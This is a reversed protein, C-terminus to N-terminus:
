KPTEERQNEAGPENPRKGSNSAQHQNVSEGPGGHPPQAMMALPNLIVKSPDLGRMRAGRRLVYARNFLPDKAALNYFTMLDKFDKATDVRLQSDPAIDYLYRGSILQNNWVQMVKAGQQGTIQIYEDETAYRMLLQDIMRAGDLYFDVVRGLEKDNRAAVASQVNAIETATRVTNEPVGSQNSGIGLTEDIDRKILEAGQYDDRTQTIGATTAIIKDSGQALKGAEVEIYDGIEGNKIREIDEPAFAGGDYLYKGIQADRIRISQRRWTSLQKIESNTFASDSPPFPSDALDRISLIRVPFGVLSDKTLRGTKPDFEQDPSPRWVVPRDEIGKVLILQGMAQPHLEETFVSLKVFLEVGEVLGPPKEAQKDEEYEHVRDDSSLKDAEEQSLGLQTMAMAPSMWFKMGMFTADEDFRTSRLDDNFLVKKPSFRRWYWDEYIPVQVDEMMPQQTGPDVVPVMPAQPPPAGLGLSTVGAAAGPMAPAQFMPDPQMVPQQITKMVCRYGLKSCGIGSWALVDFLLEDMLRNAKLGDRGLKDTLVAQKISIVDEMTLPPLPPTGPPMMAQMPNPISNQAPSPDKPTLILDPSRYFLQGIKSHINRFHTQVKVTEPEGSKKVIPLYEDLLIDWKEERAKLRDESRKVRKWWEGVQDPTMKLTVLSTPKTQTSPGVDGSGPEAKDPQQAAGPVSKLAETIPNIDAM